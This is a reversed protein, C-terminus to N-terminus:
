TVSSGDGKFVQINVAPDVAHFTEIFVHTGSIIGDEKATVRATVYRDFELLSNTTVDERVRDELLAMEILRKMSLDTESEIDNRYDIM